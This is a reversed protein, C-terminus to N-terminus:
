PTSGLGKGVAADCPTTMGGVAVVRLSDSRARIRCVSSPAPQTIPPGFPAAVLSPKFRVVRIQLIRFSPIKRGERWLLWSTIQGAGCSGAESGCYYNAGRECNYQQSFM